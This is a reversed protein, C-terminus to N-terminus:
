DRDASGEQAIELDGPLGNDTIPIVRSLSQGDKGLLAIDGGGRRKNELALALITLGHSIVKGKDMDMREAMKTLSADLAPSLKLTYRAEDVRVGGTASHPTTQKHKTM